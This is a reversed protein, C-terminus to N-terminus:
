GGIIHGLWYSMSRLSFKEKVNDSGCDPCNRGELIFGRNHQPVFGGDGKTATWSRGCDCCVMKVPRLNKIM